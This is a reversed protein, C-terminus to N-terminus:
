ESQNATDVIAVVETNASFSHILAAQVPAGLYGERVLKEFHIKPDRAKHMQQDDDQHNQYCTVKLNTVERRM